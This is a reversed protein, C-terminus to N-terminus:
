WPSKSVRHGQIQEVQAELTALRTELQQIERDKLALEYITRAAQVRASAPADADLSVSRLVVSAGVLAQAIHGLSHQLLDARAQYYATLFDSDQLWNRLTREGIGLFSAAQNISAHTLLATIAQDKKGMFKAHHPM